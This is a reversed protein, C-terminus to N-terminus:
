LLLSSGIHHPSPSTLAGKDLTANGTTSKKDGGEKKEDGKDAKDAKDGKLFKKAIDM